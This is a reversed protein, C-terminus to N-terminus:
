NSRSSVPPLLGASHAGAASCAADRLRWSFDSPETGPVAPGDELRIARHEACFAHFADVPLLMEVYIGPEGVAFDFAVFGDARMDVVRVYRVATDIIAKSSKRDGKDACLTM